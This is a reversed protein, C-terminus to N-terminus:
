LLCADTRFCSRIEREYAARALDIWRGRPLVLRFPISNLFLGFLRYGDMTDPRGNTVLGTLVETTGCVISMTKLHAALLLSKLQLGHAGALRQLEDSVAEPLTVNFTRIVPQRRHRAITRARPLMSVTCGRLANKWYDRVVADGIVQRELAVFDRFTIALPEWRPLPLRRVLSAYSNFLEVIASHYSWGDYIAHCETISFQFSEDTRLHVFFRLLTPRTLDFPRTRESTLLDALVEEQAKLSLPRVDVIEVPLTAERHVLQLPERHSHLDFSTRFVAHNAVLSRVAAHFAEPDFPLAMRIHRGGTNHYINSYPALTIHYLMGAQLQTLPYADEIDPPFDREAPDLLAFPETRPPPPAEAPTAIAAALAAITPHRFLQELSFPLSRRAALAQVQLSRISNGGLSFFSDHVGIRDLRLVTRWIAALAAETASRPATYATALEPREAAAAPLARRDVKGHATLPLRELWVYAVPLMYVPLRAALTTRLADAAQEDGVVYAVLRDLGAGDVRHEVVAERVGAGLLAAEVEGLELRHGRIKVQRDARGLYAFEGDGLYRVVDGSRYLRAGPEGGFPDPVFRSATLRARGIYGRAVGRGGVYLEGPVGPPVPQMAADLVYM